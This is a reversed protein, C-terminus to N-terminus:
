CYTCVEETRLEIFAFNTGEPGMAIRIIPSGASTTLQLHQMAANM